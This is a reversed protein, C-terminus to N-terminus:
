SVIRSEGARSEDLPGNIVCQRDSTEKGVLALRVDRRLITVFPLGVILLNLFCFCFVIWLPPRDIAAVHFDIVVHTGALALAVPFLCYLLNLGCFVQVSLGYSTKRISGGHLQIKHPSLVGRNQRHRFWTSANEQREPQEPQRPRSSRLQKCGRSEM